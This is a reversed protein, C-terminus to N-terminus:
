AVEAATTEYSATTQSYELEFDRMFGYQMSGNGAVTRFGLLREKLADINDGIAGVADSAYADKFGPVTNGADVLAARAAMVAFRSVMTSNQNFGNQLKAASAESTGSVTMGGVGDLGMVFSDAGSMGMMSSLKGFASSFDTFDSMFDGEVESLSKTKQRADRNPYIVSFVDLERIRDLLERATESVDVGDEVNGYYSGNVGGTIDLYSGSLKMSQTQMAASTQYASLYSANNNVHM